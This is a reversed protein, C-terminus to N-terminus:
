RTPKSFYPRLPRTSVGVQTHRLRAEPLLDPAGHLRALQSVETAVAEWDVTVRPKSAKWDIRKVGLDAAGSFDIGAHEGIITKVRAEYKGLTDEVHDFSRYAELYFAVVAREEANLDEYNRVPRTERPFRRKLYENDGFELPPPVGPLVHQEVFRRAQEKLVEELELSRELRFLKLSGNLLAAFHCVSRGAVYLGWAGQVAYEEPVQDTGEEGWGEVYRPAKIELLADSGAIGDASYTAWEWDKAVMVGPKEFKMGLKKGAWDRLGPELFTGRDTDETGEYEPREGRLELYVDHPTGWKSVGLMKPVLSGGLKRQVTM